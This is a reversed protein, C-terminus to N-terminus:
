NAKNTKNNNYHIKVELIGIIIIKLYLQSSLKGFKKPIM